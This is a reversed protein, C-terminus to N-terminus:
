EIAYLTGNWSALYLMGNAPVPTASIYHGAKMEWRKEGTEIDLAYLNGEIDGIFVTRSTASPSSLFRIGTDFKWLVEGTDEDAAIVQGKFTAAIIKGQAVVPASYIGGNASASWVFGKQSPLSNVMGWLFLQLRIRTAADEFPLKSKRWDVAKLRGRTDGIFLHESGFSASGRPAGAVFFDLQQEGSLKNVLHLDRDFSTVAVVDGHVAPSSSIWGQTQYSWREQGTAADLGYLKGNGSAIYLVGDEVAPSSLVTEGTDFEWRQEGTNRDLALIRGDRLGFFLFDEAVAPSSNVPGSVPIEWIFEGTDADLSVVRQDGTTLYIIGDVVAPTSFLQSDTEFTWKVTGQLLYDIEPVFATHTPDRQYMPWDGPKAVASMATSPRNIFLGSGLQVISILAVLGVVLPLGVSWRIIRKRRRWIVVSPDLQGAQVDTVMVDSEALRAWCNGCRPREASNVYGCTRCIRVRKNEPAEQPATLQEGDSMIM